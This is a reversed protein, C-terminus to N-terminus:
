QAKTNKKRRSITMLFITMKHKAHVMSPLAENYEIVDFALKFTFDIKKIM